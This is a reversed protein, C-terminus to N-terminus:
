LYMEAYSKFIEKARIDTEPDDKLSHSSNEYILFDNKVKKDNLLTIFDLIHDSPILEDNKGHFVATPVCDSSVYYEPSIRILAKQQPPNMYDDKTIRFGCCKSLLGYKWDDFESSIGCLFDPKSCNVPPSYACVAVPKVPSEDKRIYAYLLSLHGGASGGSLILKDVTIGHESCKQKVTNLASTIDDLENFVCIDDAVYRYNMTACVYGLNCFYESDSYHISKDGEHWGGGHIFLILGSDSKLNEPIFIDVKNREHNGYSINELFIFKNNM